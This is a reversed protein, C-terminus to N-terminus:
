RRRNISEYIEKNIEIMRPLYFYFYGASYGLMLLCLLFPLSIQATTFVTCILILVWVVVSPTRGSLYQKKETVKTRLMRAYLAGLVLGAALVAVSALLLLPSFHLILKVAVCLASAAVGAWFWIMPYKETRFPSGKKMDIQM